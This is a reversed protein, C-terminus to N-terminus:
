YRLSKKCRFYNEQNISHNVAIVLVGNKLDMDFINLSGTGYWTFGFKSPIDIDEVKRPIGNSDITYINLSTERLIYLYDNYIGILGAQM